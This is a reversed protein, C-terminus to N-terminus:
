QDAVTCRSPFSSSRARDSLGPHSHEFDSLRLKRGAIRVEYLRHGVRTGSVGALIEPLEFGNRSLLLRANVLEGVDFFGLTTLRRSFYAQYDAPWSLAPVSPVHSILEVEFFRSPAQSLVQRAKRLGQDARSSDGGGQEVNFAVPLVGPSARRSSERAIRRVGVSRGQGSMLQSSVM